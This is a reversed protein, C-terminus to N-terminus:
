KIQKMFREDNLILKLGSSIIMNLNYYPYIRQVNRTREKQVQAIKACTSKEKLEEDNYFVMNKKM